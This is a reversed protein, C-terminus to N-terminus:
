AAADETSEETLELDGPDDDLLHNDNVQIRRWPWLRM